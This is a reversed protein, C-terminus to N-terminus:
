GRHDFFEVHIAIPSDVPLLKQLNAHLSQFSQCNALTNRLRHDMFPMLKSAVILVVLENKGQNGLTGWDM